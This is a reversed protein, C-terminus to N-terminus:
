SVRNHFFDGLFIINDPKEARAFELIKKVAKLVIKIQQQNDSRIGLHLDTFILSTGNIQRFNSDM